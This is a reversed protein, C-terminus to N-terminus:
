SCSSTHIQNLKFLKFVDDATKEESAWKSFQANQLAKATDKNGRVTIVTTLMRAVDEDGYRGVLTSLMVADVLEPNKRYLTAVTAAWRRFQPTDLVTSYDASAGLQDTSGVKFKVFLKNVAEQNSPTLKLKAQMALKKAAATIM